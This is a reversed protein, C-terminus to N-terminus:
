AAEQLQGIYADYPTGNKMTNCWGCCPVVSEVSYDMDWNKRDLGSGANDLPGGCYHCPEEGDQIISRHEEFTLNLDRGRRKAAHKLHRYRGAM